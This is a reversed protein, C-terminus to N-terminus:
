LVCAVADAPCPKVSYTWPKARQEVPDVAMCARVEAEFAALQWYMTSRSNPFPGDCAEETSTGDALDLKISNGENGGACRRWCLCAPDRLLPPPPPLRLAVHHM